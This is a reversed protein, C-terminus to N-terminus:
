RKNLTNITDLIKALPIGHKNWPQDALFSEVGLARAAEIHRECDDIFFDAKGLWRFFDAKSTDSQLSTEGKRPSPIFSFTQFWPGFHGITWSIAKLVTKRPRATLAVHRYLRGNKKFWELLFPAPEMLDAKPSLRFQDLSELYQDRTICLIRDPPNEDLDSFTLKCDAHEPLWVNEFWARTLNNLVDDIDWVITKERNRGM